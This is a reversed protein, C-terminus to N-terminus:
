RSRCFRGSANFKLSILHTKMSGQGRGWCFFSPTLAETINSVTQSSASANWRRLMMTTLLRWFWSPVFYSLSSSKACLSLSLSGVFRRSPLKLIGLSIRKTTAWMQLRELCLSKCSHANSSRAGELAQWCFTKFVHPHSARVGECGKEYGGESVLDQILAPKTAGCATWVRGFRRAFGRKSPKSKRSIQLALSSPVGRTLKDDGAVGM